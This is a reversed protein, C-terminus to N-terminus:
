LITGDGGLVFVLGMGEVEETADVVVGPRATLRHKRTEEADFHLEVDVDEAAALLKDLAERTEEPRRHTYVIARRVRARGRGGDGGPGGGRRGPRGRGAVRVDGPQGQAGAPRQVRVRAGLVRPRGGGARGRRAGFPPGRGLAGGRGQRGARARGRVAAQGHRPRRLARRLVRARRAAGQGAL